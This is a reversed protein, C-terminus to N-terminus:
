PRRRRRPAPPAPSGRAPVVDLMDMPRAPGKSLTLPALLELHMIDKSKAYETGWRAGQRYGLERFMDIVKPHITGLGRQWARVTELGHNRALTDLARLDEAAPNLRIERQLEAARRGGPPRGGPGARDARTPQTGPRRRPTRLPAAVARAM